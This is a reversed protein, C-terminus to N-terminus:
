GQSKAKPTRAIVLTRKPAQVVLVRQGPTVASLTSKQRDDRVRATSPITLTVAKYTAKPTGETLTLQQGSVSDVVGRDLTVTQFGQKTHVVLQASVSRRALAALGKHGAKAAKAGKTATHHTSSTAAGAGAIVSAGAGGAICCIAVLLLRTHKRIMSM